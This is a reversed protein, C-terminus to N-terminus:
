AEATQENIKNLREIESKPVFLIGGLRIAILKDADIWRYLTMHPRGLEKAAEPVTYLERVESSAM